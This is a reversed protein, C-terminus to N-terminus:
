VVRRGIAKPPPLNRDRSAASNSGRPRSLRMWRSWSSRGSTCGGAGCVLSEAEQESFDDRGLDSAVMPGHLSVWGLRQVVLNLLPTLDSYGVLFRPRRALLQGTSTASATQLLGHGGRAFLIAGLSDDSCCSTFARSVTRHRQRRLLGLPSKPSGLLEADARPEELWLGARFRASELRDLGRLWPRGPDAPVPCDPM